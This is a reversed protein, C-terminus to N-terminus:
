GKLRAFQGDTTGNGGSATPEDLFSFRSMLDLADGSQNDVQQTRPGADRRPESRKLILM